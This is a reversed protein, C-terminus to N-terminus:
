PCVRNSRAVKAIKNYLGLLLLSPVWLGVLSALPASTETHGVRRGFMKQGITQQEGRVMGVVELALSTAVSIGAAWLFIDSPIKATQKEIKRAIPGEREAM